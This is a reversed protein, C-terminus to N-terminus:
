PAPAEFGGEFIPVPALAAVWVSETLATTEARFALRDGSLSESGLMVNQLTGTGLADGAHIVPTITGRYWVYIGDTGTATSGVFAIRRNSTAPASFSLDYPPNATSPFFGLREFTGAIGPIPTNRDAVLLLQGSALDYRYLGYRRQSDYGLFVVYGDGIALNRRQRLFGAFNGSGGPIPTANDAIRHLNGQTGTYIGRVLCGDQFAGCPGTGFGSGAYFAVYTGDYAVADVTLLSETTSPVPMSPDLLTSFGGGSSWIQILASGSQGVYHMTSTAIRGQKLRFDAVYRDHQAFPNPNPTTEDFAFRASCTGSYAVPDSLVFGNSADLYQGNWALDFGDVTPSPMTGLNVHDGAHGPLPQGLDFVKFLRGGVARILAQGTDPYASSAGEFMTYAGSQAPTGLHIFPAATGPAPGNSDAIKTFAAPPPPLTGGVTSSASDANNGQSTETEPASVSANNVLVTGNATGAAVRALVTASVTTGPYVAPVSCQFAASGGLAPTVGAPLLDVLAVNTATSPGNNTVDLTYAVIDGAAITPPAIKDLALDILVSVAVDLQPRQNQLLPDFVFSTATPRFQLSGRAGPEVVFALVYVRPDNVALNGVSCSLDRQLLFCGGPPNGSLHTGAPLTLTLMTTNAVVAGLNTLTLTVDLPQPDGATVSTPNATATLTLDASIRDFRAVCRREDSMTVTTTTSAGSCDDSWGAFTSDADPTASLDVDTDDDYAENCDNGCGIGFPNSFVNGSGLGSKGVILVHQGPPHPPVGGLCDVLTYDHQGGPLNPDHIRAVYNGTSPELVEAGAQATLQSPAFAVIQAGLTAPCLDVLKWRSGGPFPNQLGHKIFVANGSPAFAMSSTEIDYDFSTNANTGGALDVWFVRQPSGSVDESIAAIALPSTLPQDFFRSWAIGGPICLATEIPLLNQGSTAPIGYFFVRSGSCADGTTTARHAYLYRGSPTLSFTFPATPQLLSPVPYTNGGIFFSTGDSGIGGGDTQAPVFSGTLLTASAPLACGILCASSVMRWLWKIRANM